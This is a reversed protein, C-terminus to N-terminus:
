EKVVKDTFVKGNDMTVKMVYQGSALGQIDLVELGKDSSCV